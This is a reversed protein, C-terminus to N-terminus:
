ALRKQEGKRRYMAADAARIAAEPDGGVPLYAEGVAFNIHLGDTHERQLSERLTNIRDRWDVQEIGQGVVIFEDGAYRIVHDGPRFSSQLVRAFRRLAEDGVHHGYVDNIEKFGDLDFFLITAGTLRSDNMIDPLRRRNFVGTLPDRHSLIRLEDKTAELDTNIRTLEGGITDYLALVCGLAILWEAGADFSSSMAVFRRLTGNAVDPGQVLLTAHAVAEVAALAARLLFGTLLWGRGTQRKLLLYIAGAGLTLGVTASVLVGLMDVSQVTLGIVISYAFISLLLKFLVTRSPMARAFSAAGLVLLLVFTAKFFIYPFRGALLLDSSQMPPMWYVLTTAIACVNALWAYLWIRLESRRTSRELVIFFLAILLASCLQTTTSWRWLQVDM